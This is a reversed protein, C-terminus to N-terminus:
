DIDCLNHPHPFKSRAGSRDPYPDQPFYKYLSLFEATCKKVPISVCIRYVPQYFFGKSGTISYHTNDEQSISCNQQARWDIDPFHLFM